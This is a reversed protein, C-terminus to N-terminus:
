SVEKQTIQAMKSPTFLTVGSLVQQVDRYIAGFDRNDTVGCRPSASAASTM